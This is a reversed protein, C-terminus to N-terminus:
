GMGEDNMKGENSGSKLKLRRLDSSFTLIDLPHHYSAASRLLLSLRM